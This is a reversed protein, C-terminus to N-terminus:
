ADHIRRRSIEVSERSPPVDDNARCAMELMSWGDDTILEVPTVEDMHETCLPRGLVMQMPKTTKPHGQAWALLVPYFDAAKECGIKACTPFGGAASM